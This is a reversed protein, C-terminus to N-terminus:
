RTCGWAKYLSAGTHTSLNDMVLAIREAEPYNEEVLRRVGDAWQEVRHNDAIEVRRRNEFPAYFLLLHAVGNREYEVDYRAVQGPQAPIPERVEKACQKTTEDMCVVPNAPDVRRRYVDLVSEMQCVFAANDKLPICWM